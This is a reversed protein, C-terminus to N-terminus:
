YYVKISRIPSANGNKDFAQVYIFNEGKNLKILKSWSNGTLVEWNGYNYKFKIEKLGFNDSATGKVNLYPTKSFYNNQPFTISVSPAMNDIQKIAQSTINNSLNSILLFIALILIILYIKTSQMYFNSVLM